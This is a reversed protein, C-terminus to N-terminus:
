TITCFYLLICVEHNEVKKNCEFCISKTLKQMCSGCHSGTASRIENHCCCCLKTYYCGNCLIRGDPLSHSDKSTPITNRCHHCIFCDHCKFCDYHYHHKGSKCSENVDVYKKCKSCIPLCKEHWYKGNHNITEQTDQCEMQCGGCVAKKLKKVIQTTCVNNAGSHDYSTCPSIVNSEASTKGIFGKCAVRDGATYMVVPRYYILEGPGEHWSKYHIQHWEGKHKAPQCLFMPPSVTQMKWCIEVATEAEEHLWEHDDANFSALVKTVIPTKDLESLQVTCQKLLYQYATKANILNKRRSFMVEGREEEEESLRTISTLAEHFVSQIEDCCINYSTQYLHCCKKWFEQKNAVGKIGLDSPIDKEM